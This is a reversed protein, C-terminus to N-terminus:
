IIVGFKANFADKLANVGALIHKIDNQMVKLNEDSEKSAEELNRIKEYAHDLDRRLEAVTSLHKGEEVARDRRNTAFAILVTIGTLFGMGGFILSIIVPATM